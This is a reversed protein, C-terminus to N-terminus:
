DRPPRGKLLVIALLAGLGVAILVPVYPHERLQEDAAKAASSTRSSIRDIVERSSDVASGLRLRAQRVKEEASDATASFLERASEVIDRAMQLERQFSIPM